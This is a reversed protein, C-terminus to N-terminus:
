MQSLNKKYNKKELILILIVFTILSFLSLYIGEKLLPTEYTLEITHTGANLYLAMNKINAQYLKAERGDVCASWGTSYPISLCLLKPTDLTIKGTVTDTGFIVNQLSDEKLTEIQRAYQEMPQCIVKVSDFSYIGRSSFKIEISSLPEKSYGLDVTFDHRGNYLRADENYYEIFKSSDDTGTFTITTKDSEEWFYKMSKISRQREKSLLNFRDDNYLNNPDTEEGGFYLDYESLGQYDLGEIEIYTECEPLGDFSITVTDDSTAATVLFSNDRNTVEDSNCIITYPINQSNLLPQGIGSNEINESLVLSQLMATQKDVSSLTKWTDELIYNDYTYSFPLTHDNRYVDYSPGPTNEIGTFGYPAPQLDQKPVVYYQVSSLATLAARDDYNTYRYSDNPLLNLQKRYEAIQPNSLSWYYQTSSIGALMNANETLERGSYRYFEETEDLDAAYMVDATENETLQSAQWTYMLQDTYNGQTFANHWYSTMLVSVFVLFLSIQQKRKRDFFPEKESTPLLVILLIFALSLAIFVKQSRYSELLFCIMFYITLGTFIFRGEKAKLDMLYPWVLTLMYACVLAFAFCWRNSMYSFRNLAQGFFPFLSIIVCTIFLSKVVRFERRRYFMLFFALLVPISYGMYLTYTEGETLFLMPLKLYYSLPYFLHLPFISMRADNLVVYIMPLLIVSSLLLGLVSSVGIKILLLGADKFNKRYLLSARIVVYIVTLIVQMYFFYFNSMASIGVTLIFLYPRKGKMIKEIGIVLLPLYLMPNLFFSHRAASNLAWYCFVYTMAGALIAYRSKRGTQFCLSSFAIGSLYMRLLVSLDYYLYMLRTPFFVSFVSFPDGIVYYHLTQLIDSGEGISFDYQPIVLEHRFLLGKIINRLYKGYYVLAKYHQDWGDAHYIFTKNKLFYWSFVLSASIFFCVTYALYYTQRESLKPKKKLIIM